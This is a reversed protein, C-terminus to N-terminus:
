PGRVPAIEIISPKQKYGYNYTQARRWQDADLSSQSVAQSMLFLLRKETM